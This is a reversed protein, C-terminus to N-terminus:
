GNSTESGNTRIFTVAIAAQIPGGDKGSVEAQIKDGYKKALLKSVVWKRADIQLRRHEIMDGTMTEIGDESEKTKVGIQPTDAISVIEEAYFEAQIERARTYQNRFEENDQLWRFITTKGPVEEELCISRLSEGSALRECIQDGLEQTYLSPRGM